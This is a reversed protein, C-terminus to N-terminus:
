AYPDHARTRLDSSCGDFIVGLVLPQYGNSVQWLCSLSGNATGASSPVNAGVMKLTPLQGSLM